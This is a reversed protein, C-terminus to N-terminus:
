NKEDLDKKMQEMSPFEDFSEVCDRIIMEVRKDKKMAFILSARVDRFNEDNGGFFIAPLESRLTGTILFDSFYEGITDFIETQEEQTLPKDKEM